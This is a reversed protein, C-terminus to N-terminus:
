NLFKEQNLMFVSGCGFIFQCLDRIFKYSADRPDGNKMQIENIAKGKNRTEIGTIRRHDNVSADYTSDSIRNSENSHSIKKEKKSM